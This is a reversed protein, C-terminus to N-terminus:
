TWLPNFWTGCISVPSFFFDDSSLLEATDPFFLTLLLAASVLLCVWGQWPSPPSLGWIFFFCRPLSILASLLVVALFKHWSPTHAFWMKFGSLPIPLARPVVLLFQLLFLPYFGRQWWMRKGEGKLSRPSIFLCFTAKISLTLIAKEVPKYPCESVNPMHHQATILAIDDWLSINCCPPFGAWSLAHSCPLEGSGQSEQSPFMQSVLFVCPVLKSDSQPCFHYNQKIGDSCFCWQLFTLWLEMTKLFNPILCFLLM